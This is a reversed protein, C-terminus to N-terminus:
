KESVICKKGRGRIRSIGKILLPSVYKRLYIMAVIGYAIVVAIKYLFNSLSLEYMYKSYSFYNGIGIFCINVLTIGVFRSVKYGIDDFQKSIIVIIIVTLLRAFLDALVSGYMDLKPIFLASLIINLFSSSITAIFIFKTAKKYYFLVNIYFYYMTKISFSIAIMPVVTWAKYYGEHTFLLIIEQSFLGIGLFIFGYAWVFCESISVINRREQKGGIKMQEFFWPQFAKNASSQVLDTISGFQSALGFLGVSVLSFSSNILIKSVFNAIQTSLNHPLLPISYKLAEVLVKLDIGLKILDRKKLDILMYISFVLNTILSSLLVGNAGLKFGVIFIINLGLELFFHCISTITFRKADQMSRLIAEYVARLCTFTIGILAIFITPYFNLGKFFCKVLLNKLLYAGILFTSGSIFVFCIITGFFTKVMERDEKFDVYFRTISSYLSFAVIFYAVNTFGTTLNTVGYDETTLYATYLPLLFFSFAKLLISNFTYLISNTIVKKNSM